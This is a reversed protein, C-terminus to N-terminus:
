ILASAGVPAAGLGTEQFQVNIAERDRRAPIEVALQRLVSAVIGVALDRSGKTFSRPIGDLDRREAPSLRSHLRMARLLHEKAQDLLSREASTEVQQAIDILRVVLNGMGESGDDRWGMLAPATWPQPYLENFDPPACLEGEIANADHDM